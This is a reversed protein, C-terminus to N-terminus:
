NPLQNLGNGGAYVAFRHQLKRIRREVKFPAATGNRRRLSSCWKLHFPFNSRSAEVETECLRFFTHSFVKIDWSTVLVRRSTECECRSPLFSPSQVAGVQCIGANRARFHM